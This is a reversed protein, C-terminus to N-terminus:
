ASPAHPPESGATYPWSAAPSTISTPPPTSWTATPSATTTESIRLQPEHWSQTRPIGTFQEPENPMSPVRGRASAAPWLRTCPRRVPVKASSATTSPEWTTAMGSVIGIALAARSPQPTIVPTPATVLVARMSAPLLTTTIPQPPTPSLTTCPARRAPARGITATSTGVPMSESEPHM